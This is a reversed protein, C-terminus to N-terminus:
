RNEHSSSAEKSYHYAVRPDGNELYIVGCRIFGNKTLARQMPRNDAHTDARVEDTCQLAFALAKALVGHITGDGGIRHITGYPRDNLWRGGEIYDYTPDNGLMLAFVGHIAGNEEIVFLSNKAIDSELLERQPYGNVWQKQNGNARMFARATDYVRLIEEMEKQEALRIM